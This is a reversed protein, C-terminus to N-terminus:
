NTRSKYLKIVSFNLTLLSHSHLINWLSLKKGCILFWSMLLTSFKSQIIVFSAMCHTESLLNLKQWSQVSIQVRISSPSKKNRHQSCIWFACVKGGNAHSWPALQFRIEDHVKLSHRLNFAHCTYSVLRHVHHLTINGFLMKVQQLM